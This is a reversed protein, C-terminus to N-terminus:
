ILQKLRKVAEFTAEKPEELGEYEISLWGDYDIDKLGNVIYALDVAGDGPIVGVFSVGELSKFSKVDEAPEKERFDKFHVHVIEEKLHEFAATPEEHVLLFNGTDFTSNLYHSCFKTYMDNM